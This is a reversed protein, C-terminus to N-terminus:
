ASKKIALTFHFPSWGVCNINNISHLPPRKHKVDRAASILLDTHILTILTECPLQFLLMRVWIQFLKLLIKWCLQTTEM